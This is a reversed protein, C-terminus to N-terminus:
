GCIGEDSLGEEDQLRRKMRESWRRQFRGNVTLMNSIMLDM